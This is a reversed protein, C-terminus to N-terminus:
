GFLLEVPLSFTDGHSKLVRSLELGSLPRADYLCLISVHPNRRCFRDLEIEYELVKEFPHSRALRGTTVDGVMRITRAGRREASGLKDALFALQEAITRQYELLELRGSKLDAQLTPVELGLEELIRNSAAAPAALFCFSSARLGDALFRVAHRTRARDGAYTGCVHGPAHRRPSVHSVAEDGADPSRAEPRTVLFALLDERRFRREHRGGIRFAHLRGTNSWRRLSAESVQLLAAAQKIDLLDGDVPAPPKRPSGRHPQRKRKPM